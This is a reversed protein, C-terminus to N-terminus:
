GKGRRLDELNNIATQLERKLKVQRERAQDKFQEFENTIEHYEKQAKRTVKHSRSYMGFLVILGVILAAIIFWVIIHYLSKNLDAGLFNISDNLTRSKELEVKVEDLESELESISSELGNIESELSQIRKNKIDITDQVESWFENLQNAPIVKFKEYTESNEMMDRFKGNLDQSFLPSSILILLCLTFIRMM